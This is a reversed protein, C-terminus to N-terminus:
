KVIQSRLLIELNGSLGFSAFACQAAKNPLTLLRDSQEDVIRMIQVALGKDSARTVECTLRMPAHIILGSCYFPLPSGSLSPSPSSWYSSRVPTNLSRSRFTTGTARCHRELTSHAASGPFPNPRLPRRSRNDCGAAKSEMTAVSGRITDAAVQQGARNPHQARGM